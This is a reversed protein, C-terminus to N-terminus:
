GQERLYDLRLRARTARSVQEPRPRALWEVVTRLYWLGVRTTVITIVVVALAVYWTM